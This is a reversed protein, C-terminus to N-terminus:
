ATDIRSLEEFSVLTCGIRIDGYHTASMIRRERRGTSVNIYGIYKQDGGCQNLRCKIAFAMIRRFASISVANGNSAEVVNGKRRLYVCDSDPPIDAEGKKWILISM